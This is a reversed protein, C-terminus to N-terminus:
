WTEDCSQIEIRCWACKMEKTQIMIPTPSRRGRHITMLEFENLSIAEIQKSEDNAAKLQQTQREAQSTFKGVDRQNRRQEKSHGYDLGQKNLREQKIKLFTIRHSQHQWQVCSMKARATANSM